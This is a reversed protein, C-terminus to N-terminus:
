IAVSFGYNDAAVGDGPLLRQQQQWTSGNLRYIYAAGSASGLFDAFPAGTIAYTGSVSVAYGLQDGAAGDSAMLQATQYMVLQGQAPTLFALSLLAAATLKSRKTMHRDKKGTLPWTM